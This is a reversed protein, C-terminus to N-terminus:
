HSRDGYSSGKNKAKALILPITAMNRDRRWQVISGTLAMMMLSSIMPWRMMRSKVRSSSIWYRFLISWELSITLILRHKLRLQASLNAWVLSSAQETERSSTTTKLTPKKFNWRILFTTHWWKQCSPSQTSTHSHKSSTLADLAQILTHRSTTRRISKSLQTASMSSWQSAKEEAAKM